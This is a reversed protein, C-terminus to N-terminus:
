CLFAYLLQIFFTSQINNRNNEKKKSLVLIVKKRTFFNFTYLQVVILDYNKSMVTYSIYIYLNNTFNM